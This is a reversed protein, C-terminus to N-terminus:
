DASNMAAVVVISIWLAQSLLISVISWAKYSNPSGWFSQESLQKTRARLADLNLGNLALAIVLGMKVRTLPRAIDPGLMAGSILMGILGTWIVPQAWATLKLMKERGLRGILWLLGIFDLILVSGYAVVLFILHVVLWGPISEKM